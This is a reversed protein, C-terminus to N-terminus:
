NVCDYVFQYPKPKSALRAYRNNRACEADAAKQADAPQDFGTEIIVTRPSSSVVQAACGSLVASFLVGGVFRMIKQM